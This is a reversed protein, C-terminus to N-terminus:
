QLSRGNTHYQHLRRTYSTWVMLHSAFPHTWLYRHLKWLLVRQRKGLRYFTTESKASKDWPYLSLSLCSAVISSPSPLTLIFPTFVPEQFVETHPKTLRSASSINWLQARHNASLNHRQTSWFGALSLHPVLDLSQSTHWVGCLRVMLAVRANGPCLLYWRVRKRIWGTKM